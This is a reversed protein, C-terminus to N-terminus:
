NRMRCPAKYQGWCLRGYVNVVADDSNETAAGNFDATCFYTAAHDVTLSAFELEATATTGTVTGDASMDENSSDGKKYRSLYLTVLQLNYVYLNSIVYMGNLLLLAM